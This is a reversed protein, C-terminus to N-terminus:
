YRLVRTDGRNLLLPLKPGQGILTATIADMVPGSKGTDVELPGDQSPHLALIPGNAYVNCDIQTFLHVKAERAALRLLESTLRPPSVFLSSGEARRRLAVAPSGDPYTALVEQGKAAAITLLPRIASEVGFDHHLGLQRGADTPTAWAREIALRRLPFGTVEQASASAIRDGELYGPAYCWICTSGATARALKTRQESSLNWANLVVFLKAHVRGALVDDLLYQGCPAGLRGLASRAEYIGPQTVKSGEAALSWMSREDLVAAVEPRFPTPHTLFVQDVADMRAMESWMRRDNFWGTAGLDMWWTGFNRCAEQALNRVLQRNTDEMTQAHDRFGPQEGTALCTHTDDENLWMKGALAVSEAASMSPASQGLGRDFYSIPSCLVDIDPCNLVRRLSYHGAVTPGNPLAGFEFVYGYFFLVLKRGQSATRVAHALECECDAMTQQQFEAFDILPRETVPDRFIGAPSAHRAVSTPVLATDCTVETSAWAQRLTEDSGYRKKLWLRWAKADAPAYGSLPADWSGDYFWEGTNQGCPHYGAIRDGFQAELHNVLAHLQQAAERRYVPSAVAAKDRRGNEWQMEDDPHSQRWWSPPDMPIRPLLLAQPNANLVMKCASDVGHWDAHEGPQPWPLGIPFSVFDVGAEAALRIQQAFCESPGGLFTFTEGPQYFAVALSRAPQAQVWFSVQYRHGETLVFNPHHYIHFDPWAGQPPVKLRVHLAASSNEGKASAVTISGVTNATGQPWFTWDQSFSELGREFDCRPVVERSKTVDTVQINDLSVEGPIQGFRFHMTANSAGGLAIFDFSVRQPSPSVAIQSPGPAGWFVRARRPKGNVLWRPAGGATDVRVTLPPPASHLNSEIQLGALLVLVLRRLFWGNTVRVIMGM